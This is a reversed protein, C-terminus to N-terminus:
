IRCKKYRQLNFMMRTQGYHWELEKDTNQLETVYIFGRNEAIRSILYVTTTESAQDIFHDGEKIKIISDFKYGVKAWANKENLAQIYRCGEKAMVTSQAKKQGDPTVLVGHDRLKAETMTLSEQHFEWIKLGDVKTYTGLHKKTKIQQHTAQLDAKDLKDQPTLEKM